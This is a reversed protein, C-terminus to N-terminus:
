FKENFSVKKLIKESLAEFNERLKSEQDLEYTSKHELKAREVLNDDEIFSSLYYPYAEDLALQHYKKFNYSNPIVKNFFFGLFELKKNYKAKISNIVPILENLGEISYQEAEIPTIVYDSSKLAIKVLDIKNSVVRSPCDIIIYDFEMKNLTKLSEQLSCIPYKKDEIERNGAIVFLNKNKQTLAFDELNGNLFDKITYEFDKSIGCGISLNRNTDFDILLTKYGKDSFSAGLHLATTTKGVGGKQNIISIVKTHKVEVINSSSTKKSKYPYWTLPIEFSFLNGKNHKVNYKPRLVNILYRETLNMDEPSICITYEISHVESVWEKKFEKLNAKLFHQHEIRRILQTTLGVYLNKKDKDLFKYVFYGEM